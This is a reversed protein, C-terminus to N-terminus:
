YTINFTFVTNKITGDEENLFTDRWETYTDINGMRMDFVMTFEGDETLTEESLNLTFKAKLTSDVIDTDDFYTVMNSDSKAFISFKSEDKFIQKNDPYTLGFSASVKLMNNSASKKCEAVDVIKFSVSITNKLQNDLYKLGYITMELPEIGKKSTEDRRLEIYEKSILINKSSVGDSAQLADDSKTTIWVASGVACLLILSLLILAIIYKRKKM